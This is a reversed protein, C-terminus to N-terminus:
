QPYGVLALITGRCVRPCRLHSTQAEEPGWVLLLLTTYPSASANPHGSVCRFRLCWGQSSAAKRHSPCLRCFTWVLGLLRTYIIARGGHRWVWWFVVSCLSEAKPSQGPACVKRMLAEKRIPFDRARNCGCRELSGWTGLDSMKLFLNGSMTRLHAAEHVVYIPLKKNYISSM